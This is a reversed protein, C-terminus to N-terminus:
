STDLHPAAKFALSHLCHMAVQMMRALSRISSGISLDRRPADAATRNTKDRMLRRAFREELRLERKLMHALARFSQALYKAEAQSNRHLVAVSSNSQMDEAGDSALWDRAVADARRLIWLVLCRVPYSRVSAREALGAFSLLLAVMRKLFDRETEIEAKREM